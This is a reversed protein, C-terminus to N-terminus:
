QMVLRRLAGPCAPNRVSRRTQFLPFKTGRTRGRCEILPVVGRGEELRGVLQRLAPRGIDGRPGVASKAKV